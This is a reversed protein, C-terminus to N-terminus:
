ERYYGQRARLQVGPRTTAVRIEHFGPTPDASPYYGVLYRSRIEEAIQAYAGKLDGIRKLSLVRGGTDAALTELREESRALESAGSRYEFRRAVPLGSNNAMQEFTERLIRNVSVVYVAVDHRNAARAATRSTVTSVTDQGDTLLVVARRRGEPRQEFREYVTAVLSGYLATAGAPDIARITTALAKRDTTWDLLIVPRDSFAVVSVADDPGLQRAFSLAAQRIADLSASVSGSSDVLLVVDLPATDFSFFAIEQAVDDETVRLEGARLDRVTGGGEHRVSVPVLVLDTKLEVQGEDQAQQAGATPGLLALVLALAAVARVM